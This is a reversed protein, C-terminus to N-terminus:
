RFFEEWAAPDKFGVLHRGKWSVFPRKVLNGRSALLALAQSDSMGPLRDKLNMEKYDGGSTNFLARVAGVQELARALEEPTPPTERIPKVEVEIRHDSLWRLASRCTGCGSYAYVVPKM